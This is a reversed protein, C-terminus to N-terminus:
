KKGTTKPAYKYAEYKVKGILGSKCQTKIWVTNLKMGLVYMDCKTDFSSQSHLSTPYTQHLARRSWGKVYACKFIYRPGFRSNDHGPLEQILM